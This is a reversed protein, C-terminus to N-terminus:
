GQGVAEASLQLPLHIDLYGDGEILDPLVHDQQGYMSIAFFFATKTTEIASRTTFYLEEPEKKHSVESRAFIRLFIVTIKKLSQRRWQSKPHLANVPCFSRDVGM